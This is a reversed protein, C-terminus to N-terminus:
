GDHLDGQDRLRALNSSGFYAEEDYDELEEFRDDAEAIQRLHRITQTLPDEEQSDGHDEPLPLFGMIRVGRKGVITGIEIKQDLLLV